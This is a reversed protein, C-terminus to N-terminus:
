AGASAPPSCSPVARAVASAPSGVGSFARGWSLRFPSSSEAEVDGTEWRGDGLFFGGPFPMILSGPGPLCLSKLARRVGPSVGLDLSEPQPIQGM